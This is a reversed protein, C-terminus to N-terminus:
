LFAADNFIAKPCLHAKNYFFDPQIVEQYRLPFRPGDTQSHYADLIKEFFALDLTLNPDSNQWFPLRFSRNRPHLAKIGPTSGIDGNWQWVPDEHTVIKYAELMHVVESLPRGSTVVGSLNPLVPQSLEPNLMYNPTGSQAFEPTRKIYIVNGVISAVSIGFLTIALLVIKKRLRV